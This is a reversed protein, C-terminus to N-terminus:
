AVKMAVFLRRCSPPALWRTLVIREFLIASISDLAMKIALTDDITSPRSCASPCMWSPNLIVKTTSACLFEMCLGHLINRSDLAHSLNWVRPFKAFWLAIVEGSAVVVGVTRLDQKLLLMKNIGLAGTMGSARRCYQHPSKGTSTKEVQTEPVLAIVVFRKTPKTDVKTRRKLSVAVWIALLAITVFREAPMANVYACWDFLIARSM